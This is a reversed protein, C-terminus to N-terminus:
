KKEFYREAEFLIEERDEADDFVWGGVTNSDDFIIVPYGYGTVEYDYTKKMHESFEEYEDADYGLEAKYERLDEYYTGYKENEGDVKYNRRIEDMIKKM